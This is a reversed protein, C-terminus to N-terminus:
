VGLSRLRAESIINIYFGKVVIINDLILYKTVEGRVGNLVNKLKRKDRGSIPLSLSDAEVYENVRLAKFSSLLLFSKDNM